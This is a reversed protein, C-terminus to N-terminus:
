ARKKFKAMEEIWFRARSISDELTLDPMGEIRALVSNEHAILQEAFAEVKAAAGDIGESVRGAGKTLMKEKWEELTVAATREAWTGDDIAEVLKARMKEVKAAAKKGPAETVRNVGAKLDSIAGKTRRAHKEQFQKATLRVTKAM